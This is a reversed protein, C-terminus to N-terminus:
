RHFPWPRGDSARVRPLSEGRGLPSLYWVWGEDDLHILYGKLFPRAFRADAALRRALEVTPLARPYPPVREDLLASRVALATVRGGALKLFLEAQAEARSSLEARRKYDAVRAPSLFRYEVEAEADDAVNVTGDPRLRDVDIREIMADPAWGQAIAVAWPLATVADFAGLGGAPPAAGLTIWGENGALTRLEAVQWTRGRAALADFPSGGLPATVAGFAQRIGRTASNVATWIGWGTVGLVVLVTWLILRAAATSARRAGSLDIVVPALPSGGGADGARPLMRTAALTSGCFPCTVPADAGAPPVPAGCSPCTVTKM